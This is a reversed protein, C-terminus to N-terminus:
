GGAVGAVSQGDAALGRRELGISTALNLSYRGCIPM